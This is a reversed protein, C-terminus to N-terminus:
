DCCVPIEVEATEGEAVTVKVAPPLQALMEEPRATTLFNEVPEAQVTIEGPPIRIEFYDDEPVVWAIEKGNRRVVVVIFEPNMPLGEPDEVMRVALTCSAPPLPELVFDCEVTRGPRGAVTKHAIYYGEAIVVIEYPGEAVSVTFFGNDNRVHPWDMGWWLPIDTMETLWKVYVGNIGTEEIDLAGVSVPDGTEADIATGSITCNRPYLYVNVVIARDETVRIVESIGSRYGKCDTVAKYSGAVCDFEYRGAEDVYELLDPSSLFFSEAWESEPLLAVRAVSIPLRTHADYATGVVRSAIRKM